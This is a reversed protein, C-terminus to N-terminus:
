IIKQDELKAEMLIQQAEKVLPMMMKVVKRHPVAQNIIPPIKVMLAM